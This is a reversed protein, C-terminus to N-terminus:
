GSPQSTGARAQAGTTIAILIAILLMVTGYGWYNNLNNPDIGGRMMLYAVWFESGHLVAVLLLSGGTNNFLWTYLISWPLGFMILIVAFATLFGNQAIWGRYPFSDFAPNKQWAYMLLPLHWVGVLVGRIISSALASYRSQLRTLLFGTWGLEQGLGAVVFFGLFVPLIEFVSETGRLVFLDGGFLRNTLSGLLFVPIPFLLSFLWYGIGVRWILLRRLLRRLGATEGEAAAMVIGSGSASLVSALAMESPLMGEAILVVFGTGLLFAIIFFAALPYKLILSRLM